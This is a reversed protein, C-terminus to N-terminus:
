RGGRGDDVENARQRCGKPQEPGLDCASPGTSGNSHEAQARRRVSKLTVNNFRVRFEATEALRGGHKDPRRLTRISEACPLQKCLSPWLHVVRPMM